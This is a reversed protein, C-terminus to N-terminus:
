KMVGIDRYYQAAGPHLPAGGEQWAHEPTYGKMAKVVAAMDARGELLAKALDYALDDPMDARALIETNSGFTKVEYDIGRYVNAAVTRRGMKYKKQMKDLIDDDVALMRMDRAQTVELLYPAPQTTMGSFADLQGDRIQNVAETYSVFIVRGGWKRIDDFTIGYEGFLNRCNDENASGRPGCSVRLPYKKNILDRFGTVGTKKTIVWQVASDYYNAIVRIDNKEKFPPKGEIAFAALNSGGLGIDIRGKSLMRINAPGGGPIITVNSGPRAKKIVEAMQAAILQFPSGISGAGITLTVPARSKFPVEKQADTIGGLSFVFFCVAAISIGIAMWRSKSRM